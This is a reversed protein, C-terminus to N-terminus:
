SADSYQGSSDVTANGTFRATTIIQQCLVSIFVKLLVEAESNWLQMIIVRLEM